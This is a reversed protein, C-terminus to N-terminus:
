PAPEDSPPRKKRAHLADFLKRRVPSQVIQQYGADPKLDLTTVNVIQEAEERSFGIKQALFRITQGLSQLRGIAGGDTLSSAVFQVYVSRAEEVRRCLSEISFNREETKIETIKEYFAERPLGYFSLENELLAPIDRVPTDKYLNDGRGFGIDRHTRLRSEILESKRRDILGYRNMFSLAERPTMKQDLVEETANKKELIKQYFDDWTAIPPLRAPTEAKKKGYIAKLQDRNFFANAAYPRDKPVTVAKGAANVYLGYECAVERYNGRLGTVASLKSNGTAKKEAEALWEIAMGVGLIWREKSIAPLASSSASTCEGVRITQGRYDDPIEAFFYMRKGPSEKSEFVQSTLWKMSSIDIGEPFFLGGGSLPTANEEKKKSDRPWPLPPEVM